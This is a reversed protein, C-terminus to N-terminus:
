CLTAKTFGEKDTTECASLHMFRVSIRLVMLILVCLRNEMACVCIHMPHQQLIHRMPWMELLLNTLIIHFYVTQGNTISLTM